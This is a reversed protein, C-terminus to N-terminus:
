YFLKIVTRRDEPFCAAGTLYAPRKKLTRAMWRARRHPAQEALALVGLAPCAPANFHRESQWCTLGNDGHLRITFPVHQERKAAVASDKPVTLVSEGCLPVAWGAVTTKHRNIM